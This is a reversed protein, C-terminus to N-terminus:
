GGSLRQVLWFIGAAGVAGSLARVGAPVFWPKRRLLALLPLAVAVICLQGAEVGLNFTVLSAALGARPLHLERLANAFGFGHVLGFAFTVMWRHRLAAAAEAERGEDRSRLAWLNEAAVFVISVAILPEILRPPPALIDLAALALTISHAVTFSTVIKVLTPFSGGLLLLGILFAIHDYGTFIHLVGLRLFRLATSSTSRARRVSFTEAGQQAIRQAVGGPEGDEFVIKALHTHGPAVLDLFGVRVELDTVPGPCTWTGAVLVGDEAELTAGDLAGACDAGSSRLHLVGIMARTLAPRARDLDRQTLQTLQTLQVTADGPPALQLLPILDAVAFRFRGEIRAGRVRLEGLSLSQQHARASRPALGACLLLLTLTGLPKAM